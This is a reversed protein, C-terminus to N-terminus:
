TFIAPIFGYSSLRARPRASSRRLWASRAAPARSGRRTRRRVEHQRTRHKATSAPTRRALGAAVTGDHDSPDLRRQVPRGRRRGDAPSRGPSTTITPTSPTARDSRRSCIRSTERCARRPSGPARDRTSRSPLDIRAAIVGPRARGTSPSCVTPDADPDLRPSALPMPPDTPETVPPAPPRRRRDLADIPAPRGHRRGRPSRDCREVQQEGVRGAFRAVGRADDPDALLDARGADSRAVPAVEEVEEREHVHEDAQDVQERQRREVAPVEGHERDLLDPARVTSM